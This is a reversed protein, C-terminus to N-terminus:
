VKSIKFAKRLERGDYRMTDQVGSFLDKAASGTLPYSDSPWYKDVAQRPCLSPASFDDKIMIPSKRGNMKVYKEM